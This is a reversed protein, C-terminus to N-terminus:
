GSRFNKYFVNTGVTRKKFLEDFPIDNAYKKATKQAIKLKVKEIFKKALYILKPLSSKLKIVGKVIIVGMNVAINLTTFAIVSFGINYQDTADPEFDTFLFLHYGTAMITM